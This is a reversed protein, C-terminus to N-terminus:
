NKWIGFDGHPLIFRRATYGIELGSLLLRKAGETTEICLMEHGHDASALCSFTSYRPQPTFCEYLFQGRM